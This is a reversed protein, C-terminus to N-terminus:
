RMMDLTRSAMDRATTLANMNAEYSRQAERMNVSELTTDVNPHMVFGKEDALPNGPDYVPTLPSAMDRTVGSVRVETAGTKPNMYSQFNVMKARYPGSGDASEVSNANALNEAVVRMRTSQAAMGGASVNMTTLFDM